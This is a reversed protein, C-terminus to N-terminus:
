AEEEEAPQARQLQVLEQAADRALDQVQAAQQQESHQEEAQDACHEKLLRGFACRPMPPAHPRCGAGHKVIGRARHGM